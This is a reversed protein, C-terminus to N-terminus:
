GTGPPEGSGGARRRLATVGIAVGAFAFVGVAIALSGAIGGSDARPAGVEDTAVPQAPEAPATTVTPPPSPLGHPTPAPAEGIWVGGWTIDGLWKSGCPITCHVLEYHGDPVEPVVFDIYAHNPGMRGGAATIYPGERVTIQGLLIADPAIRPGSTRVPQLWAYWPGDAPTGLSPNHAWAIAVWARAPEGQELVVPEFYWAAGGARAARVGAVLVGGCM